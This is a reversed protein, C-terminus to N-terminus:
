DEDRVPRWKNRSGLVREVEYRLRAATRVTVAANTFNNRGYWGGAARPATLTVPAIRGSVKVAYTRGVQVESKKM